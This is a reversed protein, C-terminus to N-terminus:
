VYNMIRVHYECVEDGGDMCLWGTFPIINGCLVCEGPEQQGYYDVEFQTWICGHNDNGSLRSIGGVDFLKITNKDTV